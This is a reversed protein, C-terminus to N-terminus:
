MTESLTYYMEKLLENQHHIEDSRGLAARRLAAIDSSKLHAKMAADRIVATSLFDTIPDSSVIFRDVPDDSLLSGPLRLTSVFVRQHASFGSRNAHRSRADIVSTLAIKM